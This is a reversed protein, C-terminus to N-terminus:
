ASKEGILKVHGEGYIVESVPNDSQFHAPVLFRRVDNRPWYVSPTRKVNRFGNKEMQEIGWQMSLGREGGGLQVPVQLINKWFTITDLTFLRFFAALIPAIEADHTEAIAVYKALNAQLKDVSLGDIFARFAPEQRYAERLAFLIYKDMLGNGSVCIYAYLTGGVKTVRSLENIAKAAMATTELHMIVGNSAVFDFTGDGLPLDITSGSVMTYFDPAVSVADLTAKLEPMWDEGIDVCTVHAAGLDRMAKQFYGTNGCGVDLVHKGKFFGEPVGYYSCQSAVRYFREFISMDETYARHQSIYIAKTAKEVETFSM